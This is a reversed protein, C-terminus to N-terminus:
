VLFEIPLLNVRNKTCCDRCWMENVPGDSDNTPVLNEGVLRLPVPTIKDTILTCRWCKMDIITTMQIEAIQTKYIGKTLAHNPGAGFTRHGFRRSDRVTLVWKPVRCECLMNGPSCLSGGDAIRHAGESHGCVCIYRLNQKRRAESIKLVREVAESSGGIIALERPKSPPELKIEPVGDFPYLLNTRPSRPKGQAASADASKAIDADPTSPEQHESCWPPCAPICDAHPGYIKGSRSDKFAAQNTEKEASDVTKEDHM